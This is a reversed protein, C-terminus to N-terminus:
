VVDRLQRARCRAVTSSSNRSLDQDFFLPAGENLSHMCIICKVVKGYEWLDHARYSAPTVITARLKKVSDKGDAQECRYSDEPRSRRRGGTIMKHFM